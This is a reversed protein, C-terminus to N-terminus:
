DGGRYTRDLVSVRVGISSFVPALLGPSAVEGVVWGRGVLAGFNGGDDDGELMGKLLVVSKVAIWIQVDLDVGVRFIDDSAHGFPNM